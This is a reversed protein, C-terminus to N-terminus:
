GAQVKGTHDPRRSAQSSGEYGKSAVCLAAGPLSDWAAARGRLGYGGEHQQARKWPRLARAM